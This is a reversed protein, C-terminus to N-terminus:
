YGTSYSDTNLVAKSISDPERLPDNISGFISNKFYEIDTDRQSTYCVKLVSMILKTAILLYCSEQGSDALNFGVQVDTLSALM